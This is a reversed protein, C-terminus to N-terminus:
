NKRNQTVNALVVASFMLVCGIIQILTLKQGLIIWAGLAGFVSELCLILSAHSPKLNHQFVIQLTYAIGCSCIGAYCIPIWNDIVQEMTNNHFLIACIFSLIGTVAFQFCSIVTGDGKPAFKDIVIIHMAFLFSSVIVIIDGRNITMDGASTLLYLGTMSIAVCFWIIPNPKNGVVIGIMPVIFIYLTSLFSANAVATMSIGYQQVNSAAFLVAGCVIGGIINERSFVKKKIIGLKKFVIIMLSLFPVAVACRGAQFTFTGLTELGVSQAVFAFGWIIATTLLALSSVLQKNNGM